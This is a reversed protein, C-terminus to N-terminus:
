ANLGRVVQDFKPHPEVLMLEVLKLREVFTSGFAVLVLVGHFVELKLHAGFSEQLMMVWDSLSDDVFEIAAVIYGEADPKKTSEGVKKM